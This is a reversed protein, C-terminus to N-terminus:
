GEGGEDEGQGDGDGGKGGCPKITLTVTVWETGSASPDGPGPPYFDIDEARKLDVSVGSLWDSLRHQNHAVDDPVQVKIPIVRDNGQQENLESM